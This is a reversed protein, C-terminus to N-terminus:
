FYFTTQIGKVKYENCEKKQLPDLDAILISM